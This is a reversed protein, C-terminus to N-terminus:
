RASRALLALAPALVALVVAGLILGSMRDGMVATLVGWHRAVAIGCLLVALCLWLVVYRLVRAAIRRLM